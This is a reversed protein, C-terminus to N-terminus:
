EVDDSDKRMRRRLRRWWSDDDHLSRYAVTAPIELEVETGTGPGSRVRLKAGLKKARERMGPLGWHGPVSGKALVEADIGKGNDGIRIRLHDTGFAVEAEVRQAGSHRFANGLAERAIAYIDELAVPHLQREAGQVGVVCTAPYLAALDAAFDTLAARLDGKYVVSERLGRVRERGEALVQDARGLTEEMQERPAQGRPIRRMAAEFSLILGQFGQILTDHLERAIRERELLRAQLRSHTQARVQAVRVRYLLALASILLAACLVYFWPSQYWAPVITFAISAGQENWVGDNNSATVQFDYSGPALKTYYATRRTGAIQWDRDLGKLRYRFQVREPVSFSLGAYAIQLNVTNGPLEL